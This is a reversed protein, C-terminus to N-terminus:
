IMGRGSRSSMPSMGTLVRISFWSSLLRGHGCARRARVQHLDVVLQGPLLPEDPVGHTGEDGVPRQRVDRVPELRAHQGAVDHRFEALQPHEAHVQGAIAARAGPRDGIADGAAFQLGAVGTQAARRGDLAGQGHERDPAVARFLLLVFPQGPHRSSLRDAAEAEGLGIM